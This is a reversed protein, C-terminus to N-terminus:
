KGLANMLDQDRLVPSEADPIIQKMRDILRAAWGGKFVECACPDKHLLDTQGSDSLGSARCGGLCRNKYRCEACEPNHELVKDARTNIFDMYRSDTICKSLGIEPILPFDKQIDMGSLSMCPLARGEPSIYMVMRAYNCVCCKAPDTQYHFQPIDWCDPKDPSASFFGGLMLSVPM